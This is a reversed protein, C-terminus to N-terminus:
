LYLVTSISRCSRLFLRIDCSSHVDSAGVFRRSFRSVCGGLRFPVMGSADSCLMINSQPMFAYLQFLYEPIPRTTSSQSYFTFVVGLGEYRPARKAPVKRKGEARHIFRKRTDTDSNSTAIACGPHCEYELLWRGDLAWVM